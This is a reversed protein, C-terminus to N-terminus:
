AVLVAFLLSESSFFYTITFFRYVWMFSGAPPRTFAALNGRGSQKSENESNRQFLRTFDPLLSLYSGRAFFSGGCIRFVEAYHPFETPAPLLARVQM